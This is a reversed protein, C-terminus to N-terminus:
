GRKGIHGAFQRYIADGIGLSGSGSSVETLKQDLLSQTTEMASSDFMGEALSAQRSIELTKQLFLAEFGDAAERLRADARQDAAEGTLARTMPMSANLSNTVSTM